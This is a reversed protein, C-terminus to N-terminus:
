GMSFSNNETPDEESNNENDSCVEEEEEEEELNDENDSYVEECFEDYNAEDVCSDKDEAQALMSEHYSQIEKIDPEIRSVKDNQNEMILVAVSEVLNKIPIDKYFEELLVKKRRIIELDDRITERSKNFEIMKTFIPAIAKIEKNQVANILLFPDGVRSYLSVTSLIHQAALNSSKALQLLVGSSLFPSQGDQIFLETLVEQFKNCLGVLDKDTIKARMKEDNIIRIALEKNICAFRYLEDNNFNAIMHHYFVFDALQENEECLEIISDNSIKQRLLPSLLINKAHVLSARAYILLKVPTAALFRQSDIFGSWTSSVLRGHQIDNKKLKRLLMENIENPFFTFM